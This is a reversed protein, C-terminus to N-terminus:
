KIYKEVYKYLINQQSERPTGWGFSYVKKRNKELLKFLAQDEIDSLYDFIKSYFKAYRLEDSFEINPNRIDKYAKPPIAWCDKILNYVAYESASFDPEHSNAVYYNIPHKTGPLLYGNHKKVYEKWTERKYKSNLVLNIDIDSTENYQRGIISGLIFIHILSGLPMFSNIHEFIYLRIEPKIFEANDFLAPNLIDKPQDFLSM